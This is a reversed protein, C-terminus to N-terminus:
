RHDGPAQTADPVFIVNYRSQSSWCGIGGAGTSCRFGNHFWIIPNGYPTGSATHYPYTHKYGGGGYTALILRRVERCPLIQARKIQSVQVGHASFAACSSVQSGASAASPGAIALAFPVILAPAAIYNRWAMGTMSNDEGGEPNPLLAAEQTM